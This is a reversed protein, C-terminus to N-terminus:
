SSERALFRMRRRLRAIEDPDDSEYWGRIRGRADVAVLKTGHTVPQGLSGEPAREVALKFGDRLLEYVRAEDGETTLFLWRDADAGLSRAYDRLVAPSDYGPDVSISVLMVDDDAFAGQLEAMQRSIRPCPGVCSTFMACAVYPKGLLDERTVTSGKQSLLEFPPIAGFEIPDDGDAAAVVGGSGAHVAAGGEGCGALALASLALLVPLLDSRSAM